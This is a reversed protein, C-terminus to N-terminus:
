TMDRVPGPPPKNALRGVALRRQAVEDQAEAFPPGQGIERHNAVGELLRHREVGSAGAAGGVDCSSSAIMSRM